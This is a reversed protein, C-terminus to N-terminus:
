KAGAKSLAANILTIAERMTAALLGADADDSEAMERLGDCIDELAAVLPGHAAWRLRIEAAAADARAGPQANVHYSMGGTSSTRAIIPCKEPWATAETKSM